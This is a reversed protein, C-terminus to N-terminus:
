SIKSEYPLDSLNCDLPQSKHVHYHVRRSCSLLYVEQGFSHSDGEDMFDASLRVGFHDYHVILILLMKRLMM